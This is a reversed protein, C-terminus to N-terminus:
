QPLTLNLKTQYVRIIEEMPAESIATVSGPFLGIYFILGVIPVLVIFDYGDLDKFITSGSKQEGLVIKQYSTLMYVAGLVVGSAAVLCLLQDYQFVANFILLEGPFANTLPLGISALLVILFIGSMIPATGRIGGMELMQHHRYHRYLIQGIYFLGVANIGHSVMQLMAGQLGLINCTMIGAAILGVHAISSYALMRIFDKQLWAILSAYFIGICALSIIIWGYQQVAAPVVPIIWRIISYTGMKLMIASLMMTVPSSASSYTDPQWTHLPFIPIKIAMAVMFAMLVFIEADFSMKVKYINGIESSTSQSTLWVIALLMFVSGIFTYLFFKVTIRVKQLNKNWLLVLFYAPILAFEWFIYYLFIDLAVFVGNMSGQMFLILAYFLASKDYSDKLTSLLILLTMTNSLLLMVLSIGDIGLYFHIGLAAIWPVNILHSAQINSGDFNSYTYVTLMLSIVASLLATKQIWAKNPLLFLTAGSLIPILLFLLTLM